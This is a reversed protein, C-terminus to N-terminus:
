GGELLSLIKQLWDDTAGQSELLGDVEKCLPSAYDGSRCTPCFDSRLAVGCNLCALARGLDDERAVRNSRLWSAVERLVRSKENKLQPAIDWDSVDLRGLGGFDRRDSALM